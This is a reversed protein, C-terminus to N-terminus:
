NYSFSLVSGSLAQHYYLFLAAWYSRTIPYFFLAVQYPRTNSYSSPSFTAWYLKIILNLSLVEQYPRTIFYSLASSSHYTRIISHFSAAVQHRRTSSRPFVSDSLAQNYVLFFSHKIPSFSFFVRNSCIFTM